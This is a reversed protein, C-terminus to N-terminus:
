GRPLSFDEAAGSLRAYLNRYSLRFTEIDFRQVALARANVAYREYDARLRDIAREAADISRPFVVGAQAQGVLGAVGCTDSVLVPRGCAMSEILSNPCSKGFGEEYCCITAHASRYIASMPRGARVEIRVNDPLSLRALADRTAADNGWRRWLLVIDIDRRRQALSVLFPIGRQSFEGPDAPSSAFLIRFPTPAPGPGPAFQRLDVGPYVVSVRNSPIGSRILADALSETEAAFLSVKRSLDHHISRGPLAVTFLVPRRGVARLLHWDDLAGFVHTVAGRRELVAALARLTLWRAPSLRVVRDGFSVASRQGASFSVVPALAGDHSRLAQVENSLAERGPRWIGTWYTVFPPLHRDM